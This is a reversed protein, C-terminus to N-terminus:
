EDLAATRMELSACDDTLASHAAKAVDSVSFRYGTRIVGCDSRAALRQDLDLDDQQLTRVSDASIGAVPLLALDSLVKERGAISVLALELSRTVVEDNQLLEQLKV